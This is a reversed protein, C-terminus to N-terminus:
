RLIRVKKDIYNGIHSVVFATGLYGLPLLETNWAAIASMLYSQGAMFSM